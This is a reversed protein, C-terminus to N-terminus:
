NSFHRPWKEGEAARRWASCKLAARKASPAQEAVEVADQLGRGLMDETGGSLTIASSEANDALRHEQTPMHIGLREKEDSNDERHAASKEIRDLNEM